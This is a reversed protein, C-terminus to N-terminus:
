RESILDGNKRIGEILQLPDIRYRDSSDERGKDTRDDLLRTREQLILDGSQTQVSLSYTEWEFTAGGPTETRPPEFIVL